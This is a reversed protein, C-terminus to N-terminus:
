WRAGKRVMREARAGPERGWRESGLDLTRGFDAANRTCYVISEMEIGPERLVMLNELLL